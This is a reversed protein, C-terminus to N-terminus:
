FNNYFSWLTEIFWHKGQICKTFDKDNLKGTDHEFCCKDVDNLPPRGDIISFPGCYNTGPWHLGKNWMIYVTAVAIVIVIVIGADM